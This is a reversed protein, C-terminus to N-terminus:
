ILKLLIRLPKLQLVYEWLKQLNVIGAQALIALTIMVTSLTIILMLRVIKKQIKIQQTYRKEEKEYEVITAIAEGQVFYRGEHLKLDGTIVLSQLILTM